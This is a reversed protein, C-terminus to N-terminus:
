QPSLPLATLAGLFCELLDQCDQLRGVSKGAMDRVLADKKADSRALHDELFQLTEPSIMAAADEGLKMASAKPEDWDHAAMFGEDYLAERIEPIRSYQAILYKFDLADKARIPGDRDLWAVLKLISMAAPSAVSIHAEPYDRIKVKLAHACAEGFGLVNMVRDRGPPWFIRAGEEQIGGFPVIDIEWPLGGSDTTHLRHPMREDEQFGTGLLRAKLRAFCDWDSVNVAFDVDRTGREIEAGFGHVMVLDRAMAGVILCRLELMAAQIEIREYLEVLGRPLKGTVDVYSNKM